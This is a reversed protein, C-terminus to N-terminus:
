KINIVPANNDIIGKGDEYTFSVVGCVPKEVIREGNCKINKMDISVKTFDQPNGNKATYDQCMIYSTYESESEPDIFTYEENSASIHAHVNLPNSIRIIESNASGVFKNNELLVEAGEEMRYLNFYNNGCVGNFECDRMVIDKTAGESVAGEIPNYVNACEFMNRELLVNGNSCMHIASYGMNAFKSDKITLSAGDKVEVGFVKAKKDAGQAAFECGVFEADEAVNVQAEFKVNEFKVM